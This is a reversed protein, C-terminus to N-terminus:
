GTAFRTPTASSRQPPAAVIAVPRAYRSRQTRLTRAAREAAAVARDAEAARAHRARARAGRAGVRPARERDGRDAVVDRVLVHSAARRLREGAATRPRRDRRRLTRLRPLPNGHRPR